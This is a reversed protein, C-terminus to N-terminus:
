RLDEKDCYASPTGFWVSAKIRRLQRLLRDDVTVFDAGVQEALAVHAADAAGLRLRHLTAARLRAESLDFEGRSGLDALLLQMHERRAADPNAAIEALHMPSVVLGLAGSRVSALILAVADADLRVRMQYQDDLPRNLACLDLYVLRSKRDSAVM